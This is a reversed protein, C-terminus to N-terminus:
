PTQYVVVESKQFGNEHFLNLIYTGSSLNLSEINLFINQNGKEITRTEVLVRQGAESFLSLTISGSNKANLHVNINSSTPNPSITTIIFSPKDISQITPTITTKKRNPKNKKTTKPSVKEKKNAKKTRRKNLINDMFADIDLQNWLNKAKQYVTEERHYEQPMIVMGMIMNRSNHLVVDLNAGIAQNELWMGESGVYTIHVDFSKATCDTPIEFVFKGDIDATIGGIVEDNNYFVVNAGILVDGYEDSVTGTISPSAKQPVHITMKGKLSQHVETSISSPIPKEVYNSVNHPNQAIAGATLLLGSFLLGIAKQYSSSPPAYLPIPRNVQKARFRGCLQGNSQQFFLGIEKDTKKTFDVVVKKCSLCFNGREVKTMAAWDEHCPEPIKIEFSKAKM